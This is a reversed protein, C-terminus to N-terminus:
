EDDLLLAWVPDRDRRDMTSLEDVKQTQTIAIEGIRAAPPM